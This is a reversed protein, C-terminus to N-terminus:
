RMKPDLWAYILDVLINIIVFLLAIVLVAGMVVPLDQFNLADVIQKGLGNWGFIFEVFVAGALMSAFWGSITTVVPNLSNRLAHKLVITKTSLGKAKATRIYDQSMTELISNRMLQIVVGLPRIGLTIAPLILNKLDLFRGRGLDDVTYLSGTMSLGTYASLVYGFLWAIIIATFFSPLSMGFTGFVTWFRDFWSDKYLASFIGITIGIIISITIASIALIMTNPLTEAIIASVPKGKKHFSERLYPWKLVWVGNATQVIETHKQSLAQHTYNEPNNSHWSIFSLDNLYYGFQVSVPKDLGYKKRIEQLQAEGAKEDLMMRAPDGPVVYFLVFVLGAVGFLVAVAYSLKNALFGIM